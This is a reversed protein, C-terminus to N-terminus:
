INSNFDISIKKNDEVHLCLLVDVNCGIVM